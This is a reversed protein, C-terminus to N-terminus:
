RGILKMSYTARNSEIAIFGTVATDLLHFYLNEAKENDLVLTHLLM